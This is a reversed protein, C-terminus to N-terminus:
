EGKFFETIPLKYKVSDVKHVGLLFLVYSAVSSGRGVGWVIHNERLTDVIYKMARLVSIMEHKRYLDMEMSLRDLNEEPCRDILFKEIDINKYEKPIFWNTSDIETKPEPYDLREEFLRSRYKELTTPDTVCNKLIEPGYKLVGSVLQTENNILM